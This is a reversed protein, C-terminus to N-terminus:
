TIDEDQMAMGEMMDEGPAYYDSLSLCNLQVSSGLQIPSLSVLSRWPITTM